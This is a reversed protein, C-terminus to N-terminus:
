HAVVVDAQIKTKEQNILDLATKMENLRKVKSAIVQELDAIKAEKGPIEKDIEGVRKEILKKTDKSIAM